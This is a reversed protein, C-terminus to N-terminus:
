NERIVEVIFYSTDGQWIPSFLLQRYKLTCRDGSRQVKHIDEIVKDDSVTFAWSSTVGQGLGGQLLEGEWTQVFLGKHSFKTVVGTREGVSISINGILYLGLFILALSLVVGTIVKSKLKM